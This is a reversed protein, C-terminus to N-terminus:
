WNCVEQETGYWVQTEEKQMETRLQWRQKYDEAKLNFVCDGLILRMLGDFLRRVGEVQGNGYEVRPLSFWQSSLYYTGVLMPGDAYSAHPNDHYNKRYFASGKKFKAELEEVDSKKMGTIEQHREFEAMSTLDIRGERIEVYGEPVLIGYTWTSATMVLVYVPRGHGRTINVMAHKVAYFGGQFWGNWKLKDEVFKRALVCVVRDPNFFMNSKSGFKKQPRDDCVHIVGDAFGTAVDGDPQLDGFLHAAEEPVLSLGQNDGDSCNYGFPEQADETDPNIYCGLHEEDDVKRKKSEAMLEEFSWKRKLGVCRQNHIEVDKSSPKTFKWIGDLFAFHVPFAQRESEAECYAHEATLFKNFWEWRAQATEQADLVNGEFKDPVPFHSGVPVDVVEVLPFNAAFLDRHFFQPAIKAPDTVRWKKRKISASASTTGSASVHSAQHFQEDVAFIEETGEKPVDILVPTIEKGEEPVAERVNARFQLLRDQLDRVNGSKSLGFGTLIEQLQKKKLCKIGEVTLNELDSDEKKLRRATAM